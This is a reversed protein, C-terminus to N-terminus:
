ARSGVCGNGITYYMTYCLSGSGDRSGDRDARVGICIGASDGDIRYLRLDDSVHADRPM